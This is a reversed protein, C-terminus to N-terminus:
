TPIKSRGERTGPTALLWRFYRRLLRCTEFAYKSAGSTFVCYGSMAIMQHRNATPQCGDVAASEGCGPYLMVLHLCIAQGNGGRLDELDPHNPKISVQVVNARWLLSWTEPTQDPM